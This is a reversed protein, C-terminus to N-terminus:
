WPPLGHSILSNHTFSNALPVVLLSATSQSHAATSASTSLPHSCPLLSQGMSCAMPEHLTTTAAMRVWLSDSKDILAMGKPAVASVCGLLDYFSEGTYPLLDDDTDADLISAAAARAVTTTTRPRPGVLTATSSGRMSSFRAASSCAFAPHPRTTARTYATTRCSALPQMTIHTTKQEQQRTPSPIHEAASRHAAPSPVSRCSRANRANAPRKAFM